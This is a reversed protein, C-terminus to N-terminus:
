VDFRKGSVHLLHDATYLLLSMWCLSLSSIFILYCSSLISRLSFLFTILYFMLSKM